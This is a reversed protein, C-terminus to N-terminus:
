LYLFFWFTRFTSFHWYMCIHLKDYSPLSCSTVIVKINRKQERTIFTQYHDSLATLVTWDLDESESSRKCNGEEGWEELQYDYKVSFAGFEFLIYILKKWSQSRWFIKWQNGFSNWENLYGLFSFSNHVIVYRFSCFIMFINLVTM